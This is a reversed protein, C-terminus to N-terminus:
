RSPAGSAAEPEDGSSGCGAAVLLVGVVVLTILPRRM